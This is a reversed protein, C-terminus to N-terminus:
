GNVWTVLYFQVRGVWGEKTVLFRWYRTPYYIGAGQANTEMPAVPFFGSTTAVGKFTLAGLMYGADINLLTRAGEVSFWNTGDDSGQLQITCVKGSLWTNTLTLGDNGSARARVRFEFLPLSDADADNGSFAAYANLAADWDISFALTTDTSASDVAAQITYVSDYAGGVTAIAARHFQTNLTREQWLPWPRAQQASATGVTLAFIFLACLARWVFRM